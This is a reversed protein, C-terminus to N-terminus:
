KLTGGVVSNGEKRTVKKPDIAIGTGPPLGDMSASLDVEPLPFAGLAEGGIAKMLGGVLSEAILKEIAAESAVLADQQVIVETEISKVETLAIAVEGKSATLKTGATFTAWLVVDMQAGLVELSADVRMDGIFADLEGKENCDDLTPALLAKAKLKLNKAGIASLDVDGLMEKPVPFELLGGVWLAYLLENLADDALSLELPHGKLLWLKQNGQGCGIRQPVGFNDVTNAKKAYVGARLEFVGGDPKFTVASFDTILDAQIKEGSGDLKAVEMDVSVALASLASQLAPGIQGAIASELGKELDATYSKLVANVIPNLLAGLGSLALKLGNIKVKVSKMTVVLKHDVVKTQVEATIGISNITLKGTANAWFFLIKYKAAADGKLNPISANMVLGGDVPVLTVKAKDYTLNTIKLEANDAKYAPDPLLKGLDIGQMYLEFITALDNPPLSHDGDDIVQKSLFYGLGPDVMGSKPKSLEPKFYMSSWLYAQVRKRQTGMSDTAYFLLQNGGVKSIYDHAFSGDAALKVKEGNLKFSTIPGAGSSVKGKVTVKPSPQKITAGRPPYTVEIQPRCANAIILTSSCGKVADCADETCANGDDCSIAKGACKGAGCVDSKTCVTGDDCAAVNNTNTCGTKPDCADDTCPNDDNCDPKDPGSACKAAACVDGLTCKNDDDCPLTNPAHLLGLKPDCGDDTCPNADDVPVAAGLCAGESCTDAATCLNNDDCAVSNFGYVCGKAPDCSDDTCPNDDVCLDAISKHGCGKAPECFDITCVDADDCNVATVQDCLGAACTDDATCADGDDCAASNATATCGTKPDCGDDTCVNGDDCVVPAGASCTGANCVDNQSCQNALTCTVENAPHVCEATEGDCSDDTCVNGDDCDKNKGACKGDQCGDAETCPDGDDCSGADNVSWDNADALVLCAQCPNAPDVAGNDICQGAITCQDADCGQPGTDAPAVQSDSAVDPAAVDAVSPGADLSGGVSEEDSGCGSLAALALVTLCACVRLLGFRMM